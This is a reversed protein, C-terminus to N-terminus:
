HHRRHPGMIRESIEEVLGDFAPQQGPRLIGRLKRFHDYTVAERQLANTQLLQMLSDQGNSDPTTSELGAYLAKHLESSTEQLDLMQAHHEHKLEDFRAQQAEDLKLRNIIVEDVPNGRGPPPPGMRHNDGRFVLYTLIGFNLLLLLLIVWKYFHEKTM